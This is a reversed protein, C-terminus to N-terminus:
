VAARPIFFYEAFVTDTMSVVLGFMLGLFWESHTLGNESGASGGFNMNGMEGTSTELCMKIISTNM